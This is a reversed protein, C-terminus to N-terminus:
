SEVPTQDTDVFVVDTDVGSDGFACDVIYWRGSEFLMSIILKVVIFELPSSDGM